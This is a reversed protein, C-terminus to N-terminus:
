NSGPATVVSGNDKDAKDKAEKAKKADLAARAKADAKNVKEYDSWAKDWDANVKAVAENVAKSVEASCDQKVVVPEQPEEFWESCGAAIALAFVGALILPLPPFTGPKM